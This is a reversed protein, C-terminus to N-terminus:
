EENARRGLVVGKTMLDEWQLGEPRGDDATTMTPSIGHLRNVDPQHLPLPISFWYLGIEHAVSLGWIGGVAAGIIPLWAFPILFIVLQIVPLQIVVTAVAQVLLPLTLFGVAAWAALCYIYVWGIAIGGRGHIAVILWRSLSVAGLHVLPSLLRLFLVLINFIILLVWNVLSFSSGRRM